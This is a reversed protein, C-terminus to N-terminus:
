RPDEEGGGTWPRLWRELRRRAKMVRVRATQPNVELIRAIEEYELGEQGRLVLAARLGHPLQELGARLSAGLERRSSAEPPASDRSPAEVADLGAEVAPASGRRRFHDRSLHVAIRALWSAFPADGRYAALAGHAKLFCEQALDEADEHNGIMRFLLGYVRKFHLRVLQDFAEVDGGAAREVLAGLDSPDWVPRRASLRTAV